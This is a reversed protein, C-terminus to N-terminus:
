DDVFNETLIWLLGKGKFWDKLRFYYLAFSPRRLPWSCAQELIVRNHPHEPTGKDGDQFHDWVCSIAEHDCGYTLFRKWVLCSRVVRPWQWLINMDCAFVFNQDLWDKAYYVKPRTNMSFVQFYRSIVFSYFVFYALQWSKFFFNHIVKFKDLVFNNSFFFWGRAPFDATPKQRFLKRKM